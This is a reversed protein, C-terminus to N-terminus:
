YGNWNRDSPLYLKSLLVVISTRNQLYETLYSHNGKVVLQRPIESSWRIITHFIRRNEWASFVEITTEIIRFPFSISTSSPMMRSQQSYSEKGYMSKQLASFTLM